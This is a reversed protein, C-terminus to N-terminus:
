LLFSSNKLFFPLNPQNFNTISFYFTRLDQLSKQDFNVFTHTYFPKFLSTQPEYISDNRSNEAKFCNPCAPNNYRTPQDSPNHCSCPALSNQCCPSNCCTAAKLLKLEPSLAFCLLFFTLIIKKAM